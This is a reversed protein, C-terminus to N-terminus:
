ENDDDRERKLSKELKPSYYNDDEPESKLHLPSCPCSFFYSIVGNKICHQLCLRCPESPVPRVKCLWKRKGEQSWWWVVEDSLQGFCFMNQRKGILSQDIWPWKFVFLNNILALYIKRKIVKEEKRKEKHKDKHKDTSGDKHKMKEREKDRHKKDSSDRYIKWLLLRTLSM